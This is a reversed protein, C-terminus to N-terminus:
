EADAATDDDFDFDFEEGHLEQLGEEIDEEDVEFRRNRRGADAPRAREPTAPGGRRRRVPAGPRGSTEDEIDRREIDDGFRLGSRDPTQRRPAAPAAETTAAAPAAEVPAEQFAAVAEM